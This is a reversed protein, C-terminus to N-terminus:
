LSGLGARLRRITEPAGGHRRHWQEVGGHQEDLEHLATQMAARDTDRLGVPVDGPEYGTAALTKPLRRLIQPVAASTTVYDDLIASHDAGLIRLVLAVLVGTRDKGATCHILVPTEARAVIDCARAFERAMPPKLMAAYLADLSADPSTSDYSAGGGIPVSFVSAHAALPHEGGREAPRRLDIVTRPPWAVEYGSTDDDLLPADGRLLLGPALLRPCTRAVDRLNVLRNPFAGPGAGSNPESALNM